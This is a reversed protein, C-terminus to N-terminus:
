DIVGEKGVEVDGVEGFRLCGVLRVLQMCRSIVSGGFAIRATGLAYSEQSARRPALVRASGKFTCPVFARSM